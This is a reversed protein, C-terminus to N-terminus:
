SMLVKIQLFRSQFIKIVTQFLSMGLGYKKSLLTLHSILINIKEDDSLKEHSSIGISSSYEDYNMENM